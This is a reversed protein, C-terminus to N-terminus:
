NKRSLQIRQSQALFDLYHLHVDRPNDARSLQVAGVEEVPPLVELEEANKIWRCNSLSRLNKVEKTTSTAFGLEQAEATRIWKESDMWDSLQKHTSKVKTQYIEILSEKVGDLVDAEARFDSAEGMTITWPNHIMIQAGTGMIVSDGACAIISAASAAWGDIYLEIEAPNQALLNYIAIGEFVDGGPSNLRVTIKDVEGIEDLMAKVDAAGVVDEWGDAGIGGYIQIENM